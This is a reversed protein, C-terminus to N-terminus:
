FSLLVLVSFFPLFHSLFKLVFLNYKLIGVPVLNDNTVLLYQNVAILPGLFFLKWIFLNYKVICEPVSDIM